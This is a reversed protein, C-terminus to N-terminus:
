LRVDVMAKKNKNNKYMYFFLFYKKVEALM